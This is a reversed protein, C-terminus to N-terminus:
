LFPSGVEVNLDLMAKEPIFGHSQLIGPAIIPLSSRGLDFHSFHSPKEAMANLTRFLENTCNKTITNYMENLGKKESRAIFRNLFEIGQQRSFNFAWQNITNHEENISSKVKDDQNIAHYVLAFHNEAGELLGYQYGEEGVAEISLLLDSFVHDPIGVNRLDAESKYWHLSGTKFKLRVQTHAAIWKPAFRERHFITEVLDKTPHMVLVGHMGKSKVNKLVLTDDSRSLIQVPLAQVTDICHGKRSGKAIGPGDKFKKTIPSFCNAYVSSSLLLVSAFLMITKMKADYFSFQTKYICNTYYHRRCFKSFANTNVQMFECQM